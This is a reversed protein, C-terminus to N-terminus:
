IDKWKGEVLYEVVTDVMSLEEFVVSRVEQLNYAIM